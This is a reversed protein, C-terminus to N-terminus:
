AILSDLMDPRYGGWPAFGEAEVVPAALIGAATARLRVADDMPLEDYGIGLKTLHKKTAICGGCSPKTYVTVTM